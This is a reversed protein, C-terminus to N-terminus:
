YIISMMIAYLFMILIESKGYMGVMILCLECSESDRQM